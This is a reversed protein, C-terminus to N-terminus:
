RKPCSCDFTGGQLCKTMRHETEGPCLDCVVDQGEFQCDGPPPKDPCKCQSWIFSKLCNRSGPAQDSSCICGTMTSGPQLCKDPQPGADDDGDNKSGGCAAAWCLASLILAIRLAGHRGIMGIQM